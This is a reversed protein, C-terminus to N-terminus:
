WVILNDDTTIVPTTRVQNTWHNYQQYKQANFIISRGTRDKSPLFQISGSLLAHQDDNDLDDLEIRKVLKEIGFLDLKCEFYSVLRVAAKRTEFCDSRLLMLKRDKVYKPSLFMARNYAPKKKIRCIEEELGILSEAVFDPEEEVVRPIGHIDEFVREREELSLENMEKAMLVDVNYTPRKMRSM